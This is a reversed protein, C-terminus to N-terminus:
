SKVPHPENTIRWLPIKALEVILWTPLGHREQTQIM